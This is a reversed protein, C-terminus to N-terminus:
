ELKKSRITDKHNRGISIRTLMDLKRVSVKAVHAKILCM